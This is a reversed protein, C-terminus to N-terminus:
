KVAAPEMRTTSARWLEYKSEFFGWDQLGEIDRERGLFDVGERYAEEDRAWVAVLVLGHKVDFCEM